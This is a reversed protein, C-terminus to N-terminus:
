ARHEEFEFIQGDLEEPDIRILDGGVSECDRVWSFKVGRETLDAAKAELGYTSLRIYHPGPGWNHLYYGIDSNWRTPEVIDFSASHPMDFSMQARRYGAQTLERVPGNPEWDLNASCRRLTDDLNRVIFGRATVRINDGPKPDKPQPPPNAHMEPPLQLPEAGIMELCLGGDVSPEYRPNEPTLGVWLRDWDMDPTRRALRFPLRRRHLKEILRELNETKMALVISHTQIPRHEGQYQALSHLHERFMPDGPNHKDLHVQPEVRTPAVAWAKSVRLFHAIYAHEEFAQRWNKHKHIGLKSHLKETMGDPDPVMMDATMLYMYM